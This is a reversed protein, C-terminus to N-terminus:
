KDATFFVTIVQTPPIFVGVAHIVECKYPAEFDCNILQSLNIVWSVLALLIYVIIMFGGLAKANSPNSSRKM